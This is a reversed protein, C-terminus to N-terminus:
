ENLCAADRFPLTQDLFERLPEVEHLCFSLARDHLVRSARQQQRAQELQDVLKERLPQVEPQLM